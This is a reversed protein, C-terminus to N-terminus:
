VLNALETLQQLSHEYDVKLVVWHKLSFEQALQDKRELPLGVLVFLSAEMRTEPPVFHDTSTAVERLLSLIGM